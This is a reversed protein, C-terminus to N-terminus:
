SAVLLNLLPKGPLNGWVPYTLLPSLERSGEVSPTGSYFLLSVDLMSVPAICTTLTLRSWLSSNLRQHRLMGLWDLVTLIQVSGM